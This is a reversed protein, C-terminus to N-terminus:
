SNEGTRVPLKSLVHDILGYDKAEEATMGAIKELMERSLPNVEAITAVEPTPASTIRVSAWSVVGALEAEGSSM